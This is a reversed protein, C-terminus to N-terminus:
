KGTEHVQEHENMNMNMNMTMTMNIYRKINISINM